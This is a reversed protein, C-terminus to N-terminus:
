VHARGIQTTDGVLYVQGFQTFHDDTSRLIEILYGRDDVHAILPVVKVDKIM